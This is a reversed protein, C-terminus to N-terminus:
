SCRESLCDSQVRGSCLRKPTNEITMVEVGKELMKDVGPIKEIICMVIFMLLIGCMALVLEFM